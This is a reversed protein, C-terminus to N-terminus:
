WGFLRFIDASKRQVSATAAFNWTWAFIDILIKFPLKQLFYFAKKFANLFWRRPESLICTYFTVSGAFERIRLKDAGLHQHYGFEISYIGQDKQNQPQFFERISFYSFHRKELIISLNLDIICTRHLPSSLFEFLFFAFVSFNQFSVFILGLFCQCIALFYKPLLFEFKSYSVKSHPYATLQLFTFSILYLHSFSYDSNFAFLFVLLVNTKIILYGFFLWIEKKKSLLSNCFM